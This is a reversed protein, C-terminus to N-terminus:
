KTGRVADGGIVLAMASMIGVVFIAVTCITICILATTSVRSCCHDNNAVSGNKVELDVSTKFPKKSSKKGIM